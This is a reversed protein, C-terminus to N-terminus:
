YREFTVNFSGDRIIKVVRENLDDQKSDSVCEKIEDELLDVM